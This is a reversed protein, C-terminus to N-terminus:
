SLDELEHITSELARQRRHRLFDRFLSGGGGLALVLGPLVFASGGFIPGSVLLLGGVAFLKLSFRLSRDLELPDELAGKAQILSEHQGGERALDETVIRPEEGILDGRRM